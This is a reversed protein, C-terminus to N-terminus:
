QPNSFAPALEAARNRARQGDAPRGDFDYLKGLRIWDEQRSPALRVTEEEFVIARKIDHLAEYAVAQGHTLNAYYSEHGKRGAGNESEFNIQSRHFADLADRPQGTDVYDFGLSLLPVSTTNADAAMARNWAAIAEPLRREREYLKALRSWSAPNPQLAASALYEQEAGRLDAVNQLLDGRTLRLFASDPFIALAKATAALAELQRGLAKLVAAANAWQNFTKSDARAPAVAPIPIRDCDVQLRAILNVNASTNRVFVASNEDLYVPRWNNSNCFQRLLPFEEVGWYRATPVIVANIGYREAERQWDPSDPLTKTLEMSGQIVDGGFPDGRGDVYDQYKPGLRWTIFGGEDYTNFIKGPIGAREIFAAGSEPFWWSLGTGFSAADIGRMYTRGTVLDTSWVCVLLVVLFCAGATLISHLRSDGVRRQLAALASTFVAGAVIVVVISFLVQLRQSRVALFTAGCLWLAPGFQKRIVAILVAIAVVLLLVSFTEPSRLSLGFIFNSWNLRSPQWELIQQSRAAMPTMLRLSTAFIKWGWPNILVAIFTLLLWPWARRLHDIAQRRRDARLMQLCELLVYGVILGLGANLGLHFNVWAVMMVPLLWLRSRGTEYQEWLLTLFAAFLVVTFIEARPTTRVAIRPVALIALVATVWSGRRLLLAVTSVCVAAGLISLLAYGGTLYVAYFVLGSAVPYRWPKGQATYSLVDTSPIQHHQVIWRGTAMQWGLDWDTVTRIGALLAYTLAILALVRFWTKGAALPASEEATARENASKPQSHVNEV